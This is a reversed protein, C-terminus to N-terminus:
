KQDDSPDCTSPDEVYPNSGDAAPPAAGGPCRADNKTLLGGTPLQALAGTLAGTGTILPVRAYHGNADYYGATTGTFGNFLGAVVDPTYPRLGAAIPLAKALASTTSVLAPRAARDLAPVSLLGKRLAPLLDQLQTLAPRLAAGTPPLQRLVAALPAAAPRLERLVPRVATLTERTHRLTTQGQRLTAPARSLTDQLATREAALAEFTRATNTISGQLDDRRSALTTAVTASTSILRGVAANDRDLESLLASSQAIAPNAYKIADNADKANGDFVTAGNHILRKLHARTPADLATLVQDLDVIPRTQATRITGGDPIAAAGPPGPTIEVYRNAIGSLGVARVGAVTGQRLPWHDDGKIKVKVNAQNDNTLTIAQVSGIPRGAVEVLDGKVLQGADVLRLNLTHTSGGLVLVAVIALLGLALATFAALRVNAAGM